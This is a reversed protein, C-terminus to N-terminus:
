KYWFQQWITSVADDIADNQENPTSLQLVNHCSIKSLIIINADTCPDCSVSSVTLLGMKNALHLYNFVLHLMIKPWTTTDISLVVVNTLEFSSCFLICCPKKPWTIGNADAGAGADIADDITGSFKPLFSLLFSTCCLKKTRYHSQNQHWCWMTGNWKSPWFLWFFICCSKQMYYWQGWWWYWTIGIANDIACSCKNLWSLQFSTCCQCQQQSWM